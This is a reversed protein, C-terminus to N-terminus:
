GNLLGSVQVSFQELFYSVVFIEANGATRSGFSAWIGVKLVWDQVTWFVTGIDSFETRHKSQVM